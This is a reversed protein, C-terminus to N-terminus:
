KAYKVSCGYPKTQPASVPTGALVESLAADVYNAAASGKSGSQDDDIAGQYVLTGSKDIVFMHPTTRAGYSRGVEGTRDDLVIYGLSNDDAWKRNAQADMYHTSNVGLWVVGQDKYKAALTSMTKAKAHRQVFPCDPNIWELVVVSGAFDALSVKRGSQDALSFAPAAAGVAAVAAATSPAASPPDAPPAADGAASACSVGALSLAALVVLSLSSRM